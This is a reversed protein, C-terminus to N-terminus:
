DLGYMFYSFSIHTHKENYSDHLSEIDHETTKQEQIMALINAGVLYLAKQPSQTNRLIMGTAEGSNQL